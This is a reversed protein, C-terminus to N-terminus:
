LSSELCSTPFLVSEYIAIVKLYLRIITGQYYLMYYKKEQSVFKFKDVAEINGVILCFVSLNPEPREEAKKRM